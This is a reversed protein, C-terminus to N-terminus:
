LVCFKTVPIDNFASSATRVNEKTRQVNVAVLKVKMDHIGYQIPRVLFYLHFSDLVMDLMVILIVDM